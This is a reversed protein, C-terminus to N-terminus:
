LRSEDAESNLVFSPFALTIDMLHPLTMNKLLNPNKIAYEKWEEMDIKGDSKTDVEVFTKDVITEVIEDDLVLDSEHLLAQVMEKLEEREIYGTHRLDYLRFAGAIKAELPTKPHFIGLVRVFERFEIQGDRNVDFLAFMRDLFLNRNESNRFLAHHLEEKHIFGDKIISSSLKKYLEYLSEIESITVALVFDFMVHVYDLFELLCADLRFNIPLVHLPRLSYLYTSLFNWDRHSIARKVCLQYIKPVDLSSSSFLM